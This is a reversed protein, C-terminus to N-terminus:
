IIKSHTVTMNDDAATSLSGASLSPHTPDSKSCFLEAKKRMSRYNFRKSLDSFTLSQKQRKNIAESSPPDRNPEPLKPPTEHDRFRKAFDFFTIRSSWNKWVLSRARRSPRM